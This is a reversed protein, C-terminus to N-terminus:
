DTLVGGGAAALLLPAVALTAFGTLGVAASADSPTTTTKNEVNTIGAQGDDCDNLDKACAEKDVKCKCGGDTYQACDETGWNSCLAASAGPALLLPLAALLPLAVSGIRTSRFSMLTIGACRSVQLPSVTVEHGQAL